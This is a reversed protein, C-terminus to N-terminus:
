RSKQGDKKLEISSLVTSLIKCIYDNVFWDLNQSSFLIIPVQLITMSLLCYHFSINGRTSDCCCWSRGVWSNILIHHSQQDEGSKFRVMNSSFLNQWEVNFCRSLHSLQLPSFHVYHYLPCFFFLDLCVLEYLQHISLVINQIKLTMPRM